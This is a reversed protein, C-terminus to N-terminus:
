AWCPFLLLCMCFYDWLCMVNRKGGVKLILLNSILYVINLMRYVQVNESSCMCFTILHLSTLPYCPNPSLYYDCDCWLLLNRNEVWYFNWHKFCSFPIKFFCPRVYSLSAWVWQDQGPSDVAEQEWVSPSLCINGYSPKQSPIKLNMWYIIYSSEFVTSLGLM